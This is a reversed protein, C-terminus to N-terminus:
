RSRGNQEAGTGSDRARDLRRGFDGACSEYTILGARLTMPFDRAHKRGAGMSSNMEFRVGPCPLRAAFGAVARATEVDGATARPLEDKVRAPIGRGTKFAM